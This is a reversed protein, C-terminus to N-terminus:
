ILSKNIKVQGTAESDIQRDTLDQLNFKIWKGTGLQASIKVAQTYHM